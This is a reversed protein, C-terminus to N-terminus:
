NQHSWKLTNRTNDIEQHFGIMVYLPFKLPTSKFTLKRPSGITVYLTFKLPTTEKMAQFLDYRPTQYALKNLSVQFGMTLLKKWKKHLLTVQSSASSMPLM